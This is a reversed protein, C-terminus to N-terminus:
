SEQKTPCDKEKFNQGDTSSSFLKVVPNVDSKLVDVVLDKEFHVDIAMDVCGWQQEEYDDPNEGIRVLKLGLQNYKPNKGEDHLADVIFGFRSIARDSEGYFKVWDFKWVCCALSGVGKGLVQYAFTTREDSYDESLIHWASDIQERTESLKYANLADQCAEKSGELTIVVLSTYGM